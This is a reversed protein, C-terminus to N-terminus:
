EKFCANVIDHGKRLDAILLQGVKIMNEVATEEANEDVQIINSFRCFSFVLTVKIVCNHTQPIKLLFFIIEKQLNLSFECITLEWPCQALLKTWSRTLPSM